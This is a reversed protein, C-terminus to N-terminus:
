SRRIKSAGVQRNVLEDMVAFGEVGVPLKDIISYVLPRSIAKSGATVLIDKISFWPLHFGKTSTALVWQALLVAPVGKAGDMLAQQYSNQGSFPAIPGFPAGAGGLFPISLVHIAALEGIGRDEMKLITRVMKSVLVEVAVYEATGILQGTNRFDVPAIANDIVNWARTAM